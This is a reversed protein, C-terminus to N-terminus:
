GIIVPWHLSVRVNFWRGQVVKSTPYGSLWGTVLPLGIAVAPIRAASVLLPPLTFQNLLSTM